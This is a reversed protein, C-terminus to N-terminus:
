RGAGEVEQIVRRVLEVTATEKQAAEFFLSLAALAERAIGQAKFIEAMERALAKVKGTRDEMLYLVALDLSALAADYALGQGMFRKRVEELSAIADETKGTGTAIRSGLWEVRVLDLDNDLRGALERVEPLLASAETHRELNCLAKATEFRLAFLLRSDGTQEVYLAAESLAALAGELDGMVECVFGKKLHIVAHAEPDGNASESARGLLELADGFRREARRLSAELSLMRWEQLLGPEQDQGSRWLEWAKAFAADAGAHDNAVRRANGIFAWVYGQLRHSWPEGGDVRGAISLALDALKLAEGSSDAAARESEHCLREALAWSRSARPSREIANRRRRPSRDALGKWFREAVLRAEAPSERRATADELLYPSIALLDAEQFSTSEPNETVGNELASLFPTLFRRLYMVLAWPVGAASAIRQLADESPTVEGSEILSIQSQSTGAGRGLDTQNLRALHRLVVVVMRLVEPHEKPEAM